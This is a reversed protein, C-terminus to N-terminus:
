LSHINDNACWATHLIKHVAPFKVQAIDSEKYQIFSVSQQVNAILLGYHVHEGAKGFVLAHLHKKEGCRQVGRLDFGKRFLDL